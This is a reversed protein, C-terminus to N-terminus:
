MLMKWSGVIHSSNGDDGFLSSDDKNARLLVGSNHAKKGITRKITTELAPLSSL